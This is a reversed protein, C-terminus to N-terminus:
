LGVPQSHPSAQIEPVSISGNGVAWPGFDGLNLILLNGVEMFRVRLRRRGIYKAKNSRRWGLVGDFMAM